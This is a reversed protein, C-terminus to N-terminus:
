AIQAPLYGLVIARDALDRPIYVYYRRFLVSVYDVCPDRRHWNCPTLIGLSDLYSAWDPMSSYDDFFRKVIEALM